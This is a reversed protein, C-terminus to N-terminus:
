VAAEFGHLARHAALYPRHEPCIARLSLDEHIGVADADTTSLRESLLIRGLDDFSILGSDFAADLGASLLLGNDASLREANSSMRWPLIHSARLLRPHMCGTIACGGWRAFLDRRYRGQGLRAAVVAERETPDDPLDQARAIDEEASPVTAQAGLLAMLFQDLAVSSTFGFDLGYRTRNEEERRWFPFAGLNSNFYHPDVDSVVGAISRLRVLQGEHVPDIVLPHREGQKVYIPNTYDHHQYRDMKKGPAVLRFARAELQRGIEARSISLSM